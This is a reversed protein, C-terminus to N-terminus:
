PIQVGDKIINYVMKKWNYNYKKRNVHITNLVVIRSNEVDILIQQGGHGGMGLIKRDQMGKIDLHFQGGYSYTAEEVRFLSRKPNTLKKEIRNNYITKLYKGVCTDNQWDDM